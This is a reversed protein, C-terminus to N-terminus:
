VNVNHLLIRNLGKLVLNPAVFIPQKLRNEFLFADGGCLIVSLNPYKVKYNNILGEIEALVGNIVGSQLCEETTRGILEVHEKVKVLPLRATLTHMAEFRMKVGPSIAGGYYVANADVFEYNICTGMDIVLSNRGPAIEIAGCAAAIRDVGLTDRSSYRVEIPLPLSQTLEIKKEKVEVLKLLSDPSKSVSSVILNSILKQDVWKGFTSIDEFIFQEQLATQNFVGVKIRTNGHDIALNM